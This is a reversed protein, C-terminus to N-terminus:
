PNQNPNKYGGYAGLLAAIWPNQQQGGRSQTFPTGRLLVDAATSHGAINQADRRAKAQENLQAAGMVMNNMWSELQAGQAQQTRDRALGVLRNTLVSQNGGELAMNMRTDREAMERQMAHQGQFPNNNLIKGPDQRYDKLFNKSWKAGASPIQSQATAGWINHIFPDMAPNYQWQGEPEEGGGFLGKLFGAGTAAAQAWM